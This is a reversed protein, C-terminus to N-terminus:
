KMVKHAHELLTKDLTGNGVKSKLGGDYGPKDASRGTITEYM